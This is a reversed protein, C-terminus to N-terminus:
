MGFLGAGDWGQEVRGRRRMGGYGDRGVRRVGDSYKGEPIPPYSAACILQVVTAMNDAYFAQRLCVMEYLM